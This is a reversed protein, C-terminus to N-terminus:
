DDVKITDKCPVAAIAAGTERAKDWVRQFLEPGAFPRAGDHVAVWSADEPLAALAHAVSDQREKGGTVVQWALGPFQREQWEQLLQRAGTEEGKAVTVLALTLGPVQSLQHLNRVLIPIGRVSAYNKNYGLGLRKGMGAAAIICVLEKEM